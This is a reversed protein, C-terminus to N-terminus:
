ERDLGALIRAAEEEFPFSAYHGLQRREIRLRAETADTDAAAICRDFDAIVKRVTARGQEFAERADVGHRAVAADLRDLTEAPVQWADPVARAAFEGLRGAWTFLGLTHADYTKGDEPAPIRGALEALQMVGAPYRRLDFQMWAIGQLPLLLDPHELSLEEFHPVTDNRDRAKLLLLGYLLRPELEKGALERAVAYDPDITERNPQAARLHM